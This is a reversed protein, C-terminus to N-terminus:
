QPHLKTKFVYSFQEKMATFMLYQYAAESGHFRVHALREFHHGIEWLDVALVRRLRMRTRILDRKSVWYCEMM